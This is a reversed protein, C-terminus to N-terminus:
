EVIEYEILEWVEDLDIIEKRILGINKAFHYKTSVYNESADVDTYYAIVDPFFESGIQFEEQVSLIETSGNGGHFVRNGVLGPTMFMRSAGIFDGPLASSRSVLRNWCDSNVNSEHSFFENYNYGNIHGTLTSSVNMNFWDFGDDDIGESVDFVFVTDLEQTMENEYIWFSGVEFYFYSRHLFLNSEAACGDYEKVTSPHCCSGVLLLFLIILVICSSKTFRM